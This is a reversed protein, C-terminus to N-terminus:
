RPGRQVSVYTPKEVVTKASEIVAEYEPNAAAARKAERASVKYSVEEVVIEAIREEPMGLQRLREMIEQADYVTESGGKLFAKSGDPLNLTQTGLTKARDVIAATLQAKVERFQQEFNRVAVLAQICAIEDDLSVIEGTGPVVLEEHEPM